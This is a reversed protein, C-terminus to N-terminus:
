CEVDTVKATLKKKSSSTDGSQYSDQEYTGEAHFDLTSIQTDELGHVEYTVQCEQPEVGIAAKIQWEVLCGASGFCEKKTVKVSLQIDSAKMAAAVPGTTVADVPEEAPTTACVGGGCLGEPLPAVAQTTGAAEGTGGPKRNQQMVGAVVFVLMCLFLVGGAVGLGILWGRRRPPPAAPGFEPSTPGFPSPPPPTSGPVYPPAPQDTM